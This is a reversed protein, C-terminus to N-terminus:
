ENDNMEVYTLEKLAPALIAATVAGLQEPTLVSQLVQLLKGMPVSGQDEGSTIAALPKGEMRYLLEVSKADGSTAKNVAKRVMEGKAQNVDEQLQEEYARKFADQKLWRRHQDIDIGFEEALQRVPKTTYPNTCKVLWARQQDTLSRVSLVVPPPPMDYHKQLYTKVTHFRFYKTLEDLDIGSYLSLDAISLKKGATTQEIYFRLTDARTLLDKKALM